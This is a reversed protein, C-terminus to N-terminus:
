FSWNGREERERDKERETKRVVPAPAIIWSNISNYGSYASGSGTYAGDSV